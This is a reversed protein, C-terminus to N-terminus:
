WKCWPASIQSVKAMGIIWELENKQKNKPIIQYAKKYFAAQTDVYNILNTYVLVTWYSITITCLLIM